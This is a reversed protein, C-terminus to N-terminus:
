DHDELHHVADEFTFFSPDFSFTNVNVESPLDKLSTLVSAFLSGVDRAIRLSASTETVNYLRYIDYPIICKAAHKIEALSLFVPNDFKGSTSKADVHRFSRDKTILSFDFPSIANIQSVWEHEEIEEFPTSLFFQNLLQEGRAGTKEASVRSIQFDAPSIGRKNHSSNQIETARSDGQSINELIASDLWGRIPHNAPPAAAEVIKAIMDETVVAMSAGESPMLRHLASHLSADDAHKASVLVVNVTHPLPEGSFELIAFDDPALIEYRDSHDIPADVIEGNLRINKADRKVKRALTHGNTEGPGYLILDVHAAHKPMPELLARLGPFFTGEMVKLDLNFGKQKAQPHKM